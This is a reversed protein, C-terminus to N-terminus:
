TLDRRPPGERVVPQRLITRRREPAVRRFDSLYIEHHRGTPRLGQAPLFKHHLRHLVGAEDDFTGVHLTQVCRGESLTELRVDALREPRRTSTLRARAAEVDVGGLWDPLLILLTWSWRSKDRAATFAAMDEAWWLGELPPVVYDRGRQKSDFKVAYAMPYLARVAVVFGPGNPDGHGDIALYQQPPVDLLRLEGSRARYGDLTRRLDPKVTM